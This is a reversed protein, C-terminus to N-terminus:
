HSKITNLGRTIVLMAISFPSKYHTTGHIAHHNEMTIDCSFGSITLQLVDAAFKAALEALVYDDQLGLHLEALFM